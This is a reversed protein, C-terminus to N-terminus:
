RINRMKFYSDVGLYFNGTDSSISGTGNGVSAVVWRTDRYYNDSTFLVIDNSPPSVHNLVNRGLRRGGGETWPTPKHGIELKPLYFYSITPVYDNNIQTGFLRTSNTGKDRNNKITISKRKAQQM